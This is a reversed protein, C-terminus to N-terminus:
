IKVDRLTMRNKDYVGLGLEGAIRIYTPERDADKLTPLGNDKRWQEVVGWGLVDLAVPDTSAYVAEHPVRRKKNTDLPGEDYILKFGDVIHLRVRSRVVDQAYLSAIQPSAHHEHFAHPNITSGHTINKLCGTYGCISHDKILGVNIVATAETFPRVFKTGIGNVKIEPMVADKNEHVTATIGAPFSPDMVAKKSAIRTGALFSPYQEYIVINSAPVGAAMVGKVIELVLEKNSAMTQGTKGAIGNPKIAVKDDKHVFKAFAAGIDSLGTLEAMVRHLMAKAAEDTPWLGNAQLTNGKSVKVVKGPIALPVFGAPPRAALSPPSAEAEGARLLAAGAAVTGLFARRSPLLPATRDPLPRQSTM